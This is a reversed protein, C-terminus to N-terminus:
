GKFVFIKNKFWRSLKKGNIYTKIRIFIRRGKGMKILNICKYLVVFVKCSFEYYVVVRVWGLVDGRRDVLWFRDIIVMGMNM